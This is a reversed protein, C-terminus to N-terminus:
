KDNIFKGDHSILGDEYLDRAVRGYVGQLSHIINMDVLMQFLEVIEDENLEGSEFAIIKSTLDM